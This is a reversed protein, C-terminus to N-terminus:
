TDNTNLMYIFSFIFFCCLLKVPQFILGVEGGMLRGVNGGRRGRPGPRGVVRGRGRGHGVGMGADGGVERM